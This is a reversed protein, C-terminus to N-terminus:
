SFFNVLSCYRASPFFSRSVASLAPCHRITNGSTFYRPSLFSFRDNWKFVPVLRSRERANPLTLIRKIRRRCRPRPQVDIFWSRACRDRAAWIDAPACHSRPSVSGQRLQESAGDATVSVAARRGCGMMPSDLHGYSDGSLVCSCMLIYLDTM